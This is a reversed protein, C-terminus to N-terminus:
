LAQCQLPFCHSLFEACAPCGHGAQQLDLSPILPCLALPWECLLLLVPYSLTDAQIALVPCLYSGMHPAAAIPLLDHMMVLIHHVDCSFAPPQRLFVPLEGLYVCLLDKSRLLRSVAAPDDTCIVLSTCPECVMAHAYQSRVTQNHPPQLTHDCSGKSGRTWQHAQM